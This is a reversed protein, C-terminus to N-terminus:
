FYDLLSKLSLLANIDGVAKIKGLALSVPLNLNGSVWKELMGEKFTVTVDVREDKIHEVTLKKNKIRLTWVEIEKEKMVFCINLSSPVSDKHDKIWKGFAKPLKKEFLESIDLM